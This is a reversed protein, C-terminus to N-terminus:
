HTLLGSLITLHLKCSTPLYTPNYTIQYSITFTSGTSADDTKLHIRAANFMTIKDYSHLSNPCFTRLVNAGDHDGLM